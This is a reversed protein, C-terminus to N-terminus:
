SNGGALIWGKPQNASDPDPRKQALRQLARDLQAIPKQMSAEMGPLLIQRNLYLLEGLARYDERLQTDRLRERLKQAFDDLQLQEQNRLTYLEEELVDAFSPILLQRLSRTPKEPVGHRRHATEVFRELNLLAQGQLEKKAFVRGVAELKQQVHALALSGQDGRLWAQMRKLVPEVALNALIGGAIVLPTGGVLLGAAQAGGAFLALRGGTGVMDIGVSRLAEKTGMRGQRVDGGHKWLSRLGSVVLIVPLVAGYTGVAKSAAPDHDAFSSESDHFGENDMTASEAVGGTATWEEAMDLWPADGSVATTELYAEEIPLTVESLAAEPIELIEGQGVGSGDMTEFSRDSASSSAYLQEVAARAEQTGGWLSYLGVLSVSGAGVLALSKGHEGTWRIPIRAISGLKERTKASRYWLWRAGFTVAGLFVIAFLLGSRRQLIYATTLSTAVVALFMLRLWTTQSWQNM